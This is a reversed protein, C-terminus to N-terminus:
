IDVEVAEKCSNLGDAIQEVADGIHAIGQRISEYDGKIFDEVADYIDYGLADVDEICKELNDLKMEGFAGELIGATINLVEEVTVSAQVTLLLLSCLLFYKM